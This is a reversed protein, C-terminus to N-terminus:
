LQGRHDRYGDVVGRTYAMQDVITFPLTTMDVWRRPARVPVRATAYQIGTFTSHVWPDMAHPRPASVRHRGRYDDPRKM